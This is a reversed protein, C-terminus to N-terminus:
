AKNRIFDSIYTQFKDVAYKLQYEEPLSKRYQEPYTLAHNIREALSEGERVIGPFDAGLVEIAGITDTSVIPINLTMAELLVYGMTETKSCLVLCRAHSLISFPNNIDGTFHVRHELKALQIENKIQTMLPKQAKQEGGIFILDASKNLQLNGLYSSLLLGQQKTKTFRGIHVIFSEPLEDSPFEIVQQSLKKVRESDFPNPIYVPKHITFPSLEIGLQKSIVINHGNGLKRKIKLRELFRKFFSKALKYKRTRDSHIISISQDVGVYRQGVNDVLVLAEDDQKKYNILSLKKVQKVTAWHCWNELSSPAENGTNWIEVKHGRNVLEKGLLITAAEAGGNELQRVVFIYKM